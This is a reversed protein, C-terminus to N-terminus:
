DYLLLSDSPRSQYRQMLLEHGYICFDHVSLKDVNSGKWGMEDDGTECLISKRILLLPLDTKLIFFAGLFNIVCFSVIVVRCGCCPILGKITVIKSHPGNRNVLSMFICTIQKWATEVVRFCM